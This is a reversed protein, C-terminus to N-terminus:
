QKCLQKHQQADCAASNGKREAKGTTGTYRNIVHLDPITVKPNDIGVAGLNVEAFDLAFVALGAFCRIYALHYLTNGNFAVGNSDSIGVARGFGKLNLLAFVFSALVCIHLKDNKFSVTPGAVFAALNEFHAAIAAICLDYIDSGASMHGFHNSVSRSAYNITVVRSGANVATSYDAFLGIDNLMGANMLKCLFAVFYSLGAAGKALATPYYIRAYVVATINLVFLESGLTVGNVLNRNFSQGSGIICTLSGSVARGAALLYFKSKRLDIRSVEALIFIGDGSFLNVAGGLHLSVEGVGIFLGAKGGLEVAGKGAAQMLEVAFCVVILLNDSIGSGIGKGLAHFKGSVGVLSGSAGIIAYIGYEGAGIAAPGNNYVNANGVGLGGIGYGAGNIEIGDSSAPGLIAILDVLVANRYICGAKGLNFKNGVVVLGAGTQGLIGFLNVRILSGAGFLAEFNVPAGNAARCHGIDGVNELMLIYIGSSGNCTFVILNLDGCLAFVASRVARDHKFVAGSLDYAFNAALIVTNSGIRTFHGASRGTYILAILIFGACGNGYRGNGGLGIMNMGYVAIHEIVVGFGRIIYVLIGIHLKSCVATFVARIGIGNVTSENAFIAALGNNDRHLPAMFLRGAGAGLNYVNGIGITTVCAVISSLFCLEIEFAKIGVVGIVRGNKYLGCSALCGTETSIDACIAMLRSSVGNGLEAMRDLIVESLFIRSVSISEFSDASVLAACEVIVISTIYLDGTDGNEFRNVIHGFSNRLRVSVNRGFGIGSAGRCTGARDDNNGFCRSKREGFICVISRM